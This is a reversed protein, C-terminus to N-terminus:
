ALVDWNQSLSNLFSFLFIGPEFDHFILFSAFSKLKKNFFQTYEHHFYPTKKYYYIM